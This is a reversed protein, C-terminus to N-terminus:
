LGTPAVPKKKRRESACCYSIANQCVRACSACNVCWGTSSTTAAKLGVVQGRDNWSLTETINPVPMTVTNLGGAATYGLNNAYVKQSRDDKLSALRGATDIGLDVKRGSPYQIQTLEDALNYTYGFVYPQSTPVLGAVGSTQTSGVIRGFGDHAYATGNTTAGTTCGAAAFVSSLAGHFDADYTYQVAPTLTGIYSKCSPRNLGDYSSYSMM